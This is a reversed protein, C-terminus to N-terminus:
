SYVVRAISQGIRQMRPLRIAEPLPDQPTPPPVPMRWAVHVTHTGLAYEAMEEQGNDERTPSPRPSPMALLVTAQFTAQPQTDKEPSDRDQRSRRWRQYSAYAQMAPTAKLAPEYDPEPQSLQEVLGSIPMIQPWLQSMKGEHGSGALGDVDLVVEHLTPKQPLVRSTSSSRRGAQNRMHTRRWCAVILIGFTFAGLCIFGIIIPPSAGSTFFSTGDPPATQFARRALVTLPLVVPM